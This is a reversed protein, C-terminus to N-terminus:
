HHSEAARANRRVQMLFERARANGREISRSRQRETLVFSLPVAVFPLVFLAIFFVIALTEIVTM